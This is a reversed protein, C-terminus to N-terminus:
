DEPTRLPLDKEKIAVYLDIEAGKKKVSREDHYEFDDIVGAQEYESGPLWELYIHRKMRGIVMGWSFRNRPRITFVAYKIAPIEFSIMGEPVVETSTVIDGMIYKWSKSEEDFDKSVAAFGWPERLNPIKNNQKYREFEKGLRTADRYIKRADTDVSMGIIKITDELDVIRPNKDVTDSKEPNRWFPTM